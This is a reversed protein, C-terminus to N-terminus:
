DSVMQSSIIPVVHISTEIQRKGGRWRLRLSAQQDCDGEICKVRITVTTSTTRLAEPRDTCTCHHRRDIGPNRSKSSSEQKPATSRSRERNTAQTCLLFEPLSRFSPQAEYKTGATSRVVPFQSIIGYEYEYEHGTDVHSM